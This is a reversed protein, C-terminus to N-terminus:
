KFQFYEQFLGAQLKILIKMFNERYIICKLYFTLKYKGNTNIFMTILDSPFDVYLHAGHNTGCITPIM